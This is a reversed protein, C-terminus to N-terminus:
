RKKRRKSRRPLGTGGNIFDNMDFDIVNWLARAIHWMLLLPMLILISILILCVARVYFEAFLPLGDYMGFLATAILIKFDMYIGSM